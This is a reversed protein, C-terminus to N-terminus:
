DSMVQDDLAEKWVSGERLDEEKDKDAKVDALGVSANLMEAHAIEERAIVALIVNIRGDKKTFHPKL